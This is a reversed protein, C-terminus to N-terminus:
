APNLRWSDQLINDCGWTQLRAQKNHEHGDIIIANWHSVHIHLSTFAEHPENPHHYIHPQVAPQITVPVVGDTEILNISSFITVVM